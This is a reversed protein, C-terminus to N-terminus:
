NLTIWHIYQVQLKRHRYKELIDKSKYALVNEKFLKKIIWVTDQIIFVHAIVNISCFLYCKYLYAVYYPHFMKRWKNPLSYPLLLVFYKILSVATYRIHYFKIPRKIAVVSPFISQNNKSFLFNSDLSIKPMKVTEGIKNSVPIYIFNTVYLKLLFKYWNSTM